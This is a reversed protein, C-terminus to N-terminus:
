EDLYDKDKIIIQKTNQYRIEKLTYFRFIYIYINTYTIIKNITVSYLCM